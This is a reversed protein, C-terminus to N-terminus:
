PWLYLPCLGHSDDLAVCRLDLLASEVLTGVSNNCMSCSHLSDDYSEYSAVLAEEVVHVTKEGMKLLCFDDTVCSLVRKKESKACRKGLLDCRETEKKPKRPEIDYSQTGM